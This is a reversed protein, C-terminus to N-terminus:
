QGGSATELEAVNRGTAALLRQHARHFAVVAQALRSYTTTLDRQAENLRLLSAEGAEYENRALERNEEVLKVSERQLRVQERAAELLVVAQRVEAGIQNRLNVLTAHAERAAQRAEIERAKDLGGAFLNWSLNVGITSGFDDDSFGPDDQRWGNVSGVLQLQPYYRARVMDVATEATKLRWDLERIDPRAARAEDILLEIKEDVGAEDVDTDLEAMRVHEPFRADPLGLLAALGYVAAEHERRSLMLSSKASNLQVKINLVDGWPGAGVDYRNQADRLQQSYFESDARSIAVQTQTLQANLFAEAVSSLLLRRANQRSEAASRHGYKAQEQSLTRYFGDFLVWSAQLGVAYEESTQDLDQGYLGSLIRSREYSTDSLKTSSGSGTMDLSPWWTAMAQRVRARAQEVRAVAAEMTPNSAVAIRQATELDLVEMSGLDPVPPKGTEEGYMSGAGFLLLCIVVGSIVRNM